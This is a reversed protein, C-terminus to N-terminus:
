SAKKPSAKFVLWKRMADLPSESLPSWGEIISHHHFSWDLERLSAKELPLKTRDALVPRFTRSRYMPLSARGLMVTASGYPELSSLVVASLVGRFEEQCTATM